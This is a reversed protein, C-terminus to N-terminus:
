VHSCAFSVFGFSVVVASCASRDPFDLGGTALRRPLIASLRATLSALSLFAFRRPGREKGPETSGKVLSGVWLFPCSFRRHLRAEASQTPPPLHPQSSFLSESLEATGPLLFSSFTEGKLGRRPPLHSTRCVIDLKGSLFRECPCRFSLGM